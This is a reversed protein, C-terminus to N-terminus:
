DKGLGPVGLREELGAEALMRRAMFIPIVRFLAGKEGRFSIRSAIEASREIHLSLERIAAEVPDDGRTRAWREFLALGPEMPAEGRTYRVYDVIDDSLQYVIGLLDGYEELLELDRNSAGASLAGLVMSLKFLSGTKLRCVELYREPSVLDALFADLIEGRVTNEWARIVYYLAKFGLREVLRQSVPVLILSALVTKAVGHVLWAAKRGRRYEDGDVIDDIALSAAQVLEVAVAADVAAEVRGGLAEATLLVLFGRFRKGGAALYRAVDPLGSDGLESLVRRIADEILAKKSRWEEVLLAELRAYESAAARRAAETAM